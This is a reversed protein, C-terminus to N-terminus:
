THIWVKRRERDNERGKGREKENMWRDMRESKVEEKRVIKRKKM